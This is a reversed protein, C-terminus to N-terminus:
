AAVLRVFDEVSRVALLAERDPCNPYAEARFCLEDFHDSKFSRFEIFFERDLRDKPRIKGAPIGCAEAFDHWAKLVTIKELRDSAYFKDFILDDSLSERGVFREGFCKDFSRHALVMVAMPAVLGVIGVLIGVIGYQSPDSFIYGSITWLIPWSLVGMWHTMKCKKERVIDIEVM